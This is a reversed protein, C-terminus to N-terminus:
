YKFMVMDPPCSMAVFEMEFSVAIKGSIPKAYAREYEGGTVNVVKTATGKTEQRGDMRDFAITDPEYTTAFRPVRSGVQTQSKMSEIVFAGEEERNAIRDFEDSQSRGAHLACALVESGSMGPGNHAIVPSPSYKENDHSECSRVIDTVSFSVPQLTLLTGKADDTASPVSILKGSM